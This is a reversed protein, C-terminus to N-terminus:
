NEWPRKAVQSAPAPTPQVAPQPAVPTVPTVQPQPTAVVQPQPAVQPQVPTVVQPQAGYVPNVYGQVQPQPAVQPQAMPQPAVAPQPAVQPAVQPQPATPAVPAQPTIGMKDAENVPMYNDLVIRIDPTGDQKVYEEEKAVATCVKGVLTDLDFNLAGTFNQRFLASLLQQIKWMAKETITFRDIGTEGNANEFTVVIMQNGTSAQTLEYKTVKLTHKGAPLNTFGQVNTFDLSIINSM